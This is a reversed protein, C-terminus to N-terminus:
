VDLGLPHSRMRTQLILKRLVFLVMIEHSPEITIKYHKGEVDEEQESEADQDLYSKLFQAFAGGRSILDEYTGYDAISGDNLVVIKDVMPLWHIGHTVLIRTQQLFLLFKIM